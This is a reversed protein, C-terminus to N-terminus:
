AAVAMAVRRFHMTGKWKAHSRLVDTTTTGDSGHIRTETHTSLHQASGGSALLLMSHSTHATLSVFPHRKMRWCWKHIVFAGNHRVNRFFFSIFRFEYPLLYALVFHRSTSSLPWLSPSRPLALLSVPIKIFFFVCFLGDVTIFINMIMIMVHCFKHAHFNWGPRRISLPGRRSATMPAHTQWFCHFSDDKTRHAGKNELMKIERERDKHALARAMWITCSMHEKWNVTTKIIEIQIFPQLRFFAMCDMTENMSIAFNTWQHAYDTCQANLPSRSLLSFINEFKRFFQQQRTRNYAWSCRRPEIAVTFLVIFRRLHM